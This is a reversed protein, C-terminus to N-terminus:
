RGLSWLTDIHPRQTGVVYTEFQEVFRFGAKEAVRRSAAHGEGIRLEVRAFEGESLAWDAALRAARSAIGRGRWPPAVGYTLEIIGDGLPLVEITGVCPEREDIILGGGHDGGAETWGALLENVLENAWAGVDGGRPGVIWIGELLAEDSGYRVFREADHSSPLRLTVVGDTLSHGPPPGASIKTTRRRSLERRLARVRKALLLDPRGFGNADPVVGSISFGCRLYFVFPHGKRDALAGLHRLPEPYLDVGALSTMGDEDDSGVWLTAVRGDALALREVEEILARGIGRRQAKPDVVLPHIEWVRGRYGSHAGVWGVLAGSPDRAARVVGSECVENVEEIASEITPWAEPWHDKFGEVLLEAARLHHERAQPM